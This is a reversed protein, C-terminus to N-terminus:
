QASDNGLSYTRVGERGDAQTSSVMMAIMQNVGSEMMSLRGSIVEFGRRTDITMLVLDVARATGQLRLCGSIFEDSDIVGDGSVDLIEFLAEAESIDVDISRFFDQVAPTDLHNHIEDSSISGSADIDLCSFLQRAQFVEDTSKVKAALQIANQVFNGTIINMVALILFAMWLSTIVAWGPGMEESLPDVIQHWDVGGSLAQFLSLISQPVSGYWKKLGALGPSNQPTSGAEEQELLHLHVSQALYIGYMYILLFLLFFSWVFSQVSHLMCAVLRRLDDFFSTLRLVRLIRVCRLMRIARLVAFNVGSGVTEDQAVSILLEEVLQAVILFLDMINWAWGSICFFRLQYVYLKLGLEVAFIGCIILDSIRYGTSASHSNSSAMDDIQAGVLGTQLLIVFILAQEFPQSKIVKEIRDRTSQETVESESPSVEEHKLGMAKEFFQAKSSQVGSTRTSIVGNNTKREKGKSIDSESNPKWDDAVSGPISAERDAPAEEDNDRPSGNVPTAWTTASSGPAPAKPTTPPKKPNQPFYDEDGEIDAQIWRRLPRVTYVKDQAQQDTLGVPSEAVAPPMTRTKLVGPSTQSTEPRPSKLHETELAKRLESRIDARLQEGLKQFHQELSEPMELM